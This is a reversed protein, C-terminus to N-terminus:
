FEYSAKRYVICQSELDSRLDVALLKGRGSDAFRGRTEDGSEIATEFEGQSAQDQMNILRTEFLFTHRGSEISGNQSQANVSKVAGAGWLLWSKAATGFRCSIQRVHIACSLQLLHSQSRDFHLKGFSNCRVRDTSTGNAIHESSLVPSARRSRGETTILKKSLKM